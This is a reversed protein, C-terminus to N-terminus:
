KYVLQSPEITFLLQWVQLPGLSVKVVCSRMVTYSGNWVFLQGRTAKSFMMHLCVSMCM